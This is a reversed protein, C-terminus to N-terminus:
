KQFHWHWPEFIIGKKNNKPYSLIFGFAAANNTLWKYEVTKEFLSPKEDSPIGELTMFDIAQGKPDGHESYGPIAVRKIVKKFNFTYFKLYYLFILAQYAPSRYGSDVLLKKGTESQLASNLEIYANYVPKPLYKTSLTQLKGNLTFKQRKIQVINKPVKTIKHYEGKFGYKKPHIELIMKILKVETADLIRFLNNFNIIQIDKIKSKPNFTKSLISDVTARPFEPNRM